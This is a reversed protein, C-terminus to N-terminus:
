ESIAPWEWASADCDTKYPVWYGAQFEIGILTNAAIDIERFDNVVPVTILANAADRTQVLRGCANRKLIWVDAVALIGIDADTVATTADVGLTAVTSTAATITTVLPVGDVGAGCIIVTYDDIYGSLDVSTTLQDSDADITGTAYIAPSAPLDEVLVAFHRSEGGAFRVVCMQEGTEEPAYLIQIPGGTGSGLVYEGEVADAHTDDTDAIDVLAMCVGSVQMQVIEGDAAPEKLIGFHGTAPEVGLLWIIEDNIDTVASGSIELIEGSKRSAGSNNVVRIIDTSRPRIPPQPKTGFRADAWAQGADVMNNWVTAPPPRFQQGSTTKSDSFSM